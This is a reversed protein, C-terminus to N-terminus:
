CVPILLFRTNSLVQFPLPFPVKPVPSEGARTSHSQLVEQGLEGAFLHVQLVGSTRAPIPLCASNILSKSIHFFDMECAASSSNMGMGFPSSGCKSQMLVQLVIHLTSSDSLCKCDFVAWHLGTEQPKTPNKEERINAREGM